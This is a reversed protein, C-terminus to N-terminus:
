SSKNKNQKSFSSILLLLWGTIFFLGGLPTIPGFFSVELGTLARTSLVYISGSFLIVGIIWCVVVAKRFRFGAASSSMALLAIAHGAQYRVGTKFSELQDAQLLGELAHAGLAGFIVALTGFVAAWALITKNM